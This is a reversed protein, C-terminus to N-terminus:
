KTGFERKPDPACAKVQWAENTSSRTQWCDGYLSCFCIWREVRGEVSAFRRQDATDTLILLELTAGAPVVSGTHIDTTVFFTWPQIGLKSKAETWNKIPQSDVRIEYSRILAPGLGVNQLLLSYVQRNPIYTSRSSNEQILYPWVSARSQDRMLRAQYLATVAAIIAIAMAAGSVIRDTLKDLRDNM